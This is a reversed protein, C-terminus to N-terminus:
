PSSAGEVFVHRAAVEQAELAQLEAETPRALCERAVTLHSLAQLYWELIRDPDGRAAKERTGFDMARTGEELHRAVGFECFKLAEAGPQWPGARSRLESARLTSARGRRQWRERAEPKLAELDALEDALGALKELADAFLDRSAYEAFRAAATVMAFRRLPEAIPGTFTSRCLAPREARELFHAAVRRASAAKQEARAPGGLVRLDCGDGRALAEGADMGGKRRLRECLEAQELLAEPDQRAELAALRATLDQVTEGGESGNGGGGGACSALLAAIGVLGGRRAAERLRM